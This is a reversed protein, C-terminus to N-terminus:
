KRCINNQSEMAFALVDSIVNDICKHRLLDSLTLKIEMPLENQTQTQTQTQTKTENKKEIM